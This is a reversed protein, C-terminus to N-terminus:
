GVDDAFSIASEKAERLNTIIRKEKKAGTGFMTDEYYYEDGLGFSCRARHSWGWWKQNAVDFGISSVSNGRHAREPAVGLKMLYEGTEEDGIYSGDKAYFSIMKTPKDSGLPLLNWMEVRRCFDPTIWRESLIKKKIGNSSTYEEDQGYEDEGAVVKYNKSLVLLDLYMKISSLEKIFNPMLEPNDKLKHM